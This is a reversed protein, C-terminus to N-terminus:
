KKKKPKGPNRHPITKQLGGILDFVERAGDKRGQKYVAELVQSFKVGQYLNMDMSVERLANLIKAGAYVPVIQNPLNIDIKQHRPVKKKINEM